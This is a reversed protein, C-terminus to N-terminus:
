RRRRRMWRGQQVRWKKKRRLRWVEKIRKKVQERKRKLMCSAAKGVKEKQQRETHTYM